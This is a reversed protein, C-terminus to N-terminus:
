IYLNLFNNTLFKFEENNLKRKVKDNTNFEIDEFVNNYYENNFKQNYYSAEQFFLNSIYTLSENFLTININDVTM